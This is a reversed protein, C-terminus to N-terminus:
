IKKAVRIAQRVGWGALHYIPQFLPTTTSGNEQATDRHHREDALCDAVANVLVTDADALVTDADALVTDADALVTDADALVTDAGALVTDADALVTDAGALATDAGVLVTDAGALVTDADALDTDAGVLVTDAGVLVTNAGVLVTDAGGLVTDAGALVTDAGHAPPTAGSEANTETLRSLQEAYHNAINDEVAHTLAMTTAMGARGSLYGSTYGILHWLPLLMSPRVGRQQRLGAFLRYHRREEELMDNLVNIHEASASPRKKYGDIAGQAIVVAGYEGAHNVRIDRHEQAQRTHAATDHTKEATTNHGGSVGNDSPSPDGPLRLVTNRRTPTASAPPPTAAM